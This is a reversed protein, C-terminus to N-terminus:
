DCATNVGKINIITLNNFNSGACPLTQIDSGDFIVTGGWSLGPPFPTLSTNQTRLTGLNSVTTLGSLAYTEMNFTGGLTTNLTIAANPGISDHPVIHYRISCFITDYIKWVM